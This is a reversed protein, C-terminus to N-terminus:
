YFTFLSVMVSAVVPQSQWAKGDWVRWQKALTPHSLGTETYAFGALKGGRAEATLGVYWKKNSAFFLCKSDDGRKSYVTKGNHREATYMFTGNVKDANPGM